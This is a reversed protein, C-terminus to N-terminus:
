SKLINLDWRQELRLLYSQKVAEMDHIESTEVQVSTQQIDNMGCSIISDFLSLDNCINISMGHTSIWKAFRLGISAIKRGGVWLGPRGCVRAAQVDLEQLLSVGLEELECVLDPVRMGMKRINFVPYIVLQGPNHVTAAGGRRTRAVDIGLSRLTEDPLIFDSDGGRVGLTVVPTHELLFLVNEDGGETLARSAQEQRELGEAHSVVGLDAVRLKAGHKTQFLSQAKM